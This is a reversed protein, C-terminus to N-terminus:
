GQHLHAAADILGVMILTLAVLPGWLSGRYGGSAQRPVGFNRSV